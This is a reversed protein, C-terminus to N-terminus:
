GTGPPPCTTEDAAPMSGSFRVARGPESVITLRGGLAEIRDRLGDLEPERSRAGAIMVEFVVERGDDRVAVTASADGAVHELMRLCSLQITRTVPRPYRAGPPVDVVVPISATALTSRLAVALDVDLLPPYVREALRATEALADRVDRGMAELLEKAAAPDTDVAQGALQLNVGLTVLHQQVGEHLEREIKRHGADAAIVLRERSARLEAVETHLRALSEQLAEIDGGGVLMSRRTRVESNDTIAGTADLLWCGPRRGALRGLWEGASV